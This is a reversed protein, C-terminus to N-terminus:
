MNHGKWEHKWRRHSWLWTSPNQKIVEELYNVFKETLAEETLTTPADTALSFTVQYYGRKPREIFAFIVITDNKIANKAPGATFATKRDFFDFWLSKSLNSPSQDAVLGLCYQTNRYPLFDRSMKHASLLKTGGRGRMKLFLRNVAKNSIPMYVGLFNYRIQQQMAVNGWEWNFNHGLHLQISKGSDFYGDVLDWNGIFRKKFFDDPASLLKITEIMSDIFRHYFDKAIHVREAETKQPFAILLNQMVVNKRYGFVYYILLYFCDSLFYLVRLPLLSFLYLIAYLFYYM